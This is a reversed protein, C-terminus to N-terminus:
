REGQVYSLASKVYHGLIEANPIEGGFATWLMLAATMFLLFQILQFLARFM